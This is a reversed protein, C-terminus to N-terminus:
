DLWGRMDYYLDRYFKSMPKRLYDSPETFYERFLSEELNEATVTDGTSNANYQREIEELMSKPYAMMKEYFIKAENEQFHYVDKLRFVDLNDQYRQKRDPDNELIRIKLSREGVPTGQNATKPIEYTFRIKNDFDCDTEFPSVIDSQRDLKIKNCIGCCPILNFLSVAFFPYKSKSHLHDLQVGMLLGRTVGIFGRNCYPCTRIGLRNVMIEPLCSSKGVPEESKLERMKSYSSEAFYTLFGYKKWLDDERKREAQSKSTNKKRKLEGYEELERLFSKGGTSCPITSLLECAARLKVPDALVLARTAETLEGESMSDVDQINKTLLGSSDSAADVLCPVLDFEYMKYVLERVRRPESSVNLPPGSYKQTLKNSLMSYVKEFYTNKFDNYKYIDLSLM